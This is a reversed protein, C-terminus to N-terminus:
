VVIAPGGDSVLMEPGVLRRSYLFYNSEECCVDSM